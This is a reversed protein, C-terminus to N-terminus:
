PFFTLRELHKFSVDCIEQWRPRKPGYRRSRRPRDPAFFRNPPMRVMMKRQSHRADDTTFVPDREAARAPQALDDTKQFNCARLTHSVSRVCLDAIRM